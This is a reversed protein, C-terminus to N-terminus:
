QIIEEFLHYYIEEGYGERVHFRHNPIPACIQKASAVSIMSDQDGIWIDIPVDIKTLDLELPRLSYVADQGSGNSNHKQSETFNLVLRDIYDQDDLIHIENKGAYQRIMRRIYQETDFKMSKMWLVFAKKAMSESFAVMRAGNNPLEALLERQSVHNFFVPSALIVSRLNDPYSAAYDVAHASGNVSGLLDFNSIGLKEIFENFMLSWQQTYKEVSDSKGYGPREPIIIRRNTKDLIESYKYPIHFRCGLLNHFIVMPRGDKPGYDRYCITNGADLTIFLDSSLEQSHTNQIHNSPELYSDLLQSDHKLFLRILDAQSKTETKRFISKLHSRVTNLSVCSQDAIQQLDSGAVLSSLVLKEKNTFNFQSVLDEALVFKESDFNPILLINFDREGDVDSNNSILYANINNDIVNPIITLRKPNSSQKLRAQRIKKAVRPKLHKPETSCFLGDIIEDSKRNHFIHNFERDVVILKYRSDEVFSEFATFAGDRDKIRDVTKMASQIKNIKTPLDLSQTTDLFANWDLTSRRLGDPESIIRYVMGSFLLDEISDSDTKNTTKKKM